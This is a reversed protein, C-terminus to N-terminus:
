EGALKMINELNIVYRAKPPKGIADILGRKALASVNNRAMRETIGLGMQIDAADADELEFFVQLVKNALEPLEHTSLLNDLHYYELPQRFIRNAIPIKGDRFDRLLANGLIDLQYLYRRGKTYACLAVQFPVIGKKRIDEWLEFPSSLPRPPVLPKEDMKKTHSKISEPSYFDALYSRFMATEIIPKQKPNWQNLAFPNIHFLMLGGRGQRNIKILKTPTDYEWREKTNPHYFDIEMESWEKINYIADLLTPYKKGDIKFRADALKNGVSRQYKRLNKRLQKKAFGDVEKPPAFSMIKQCKELIDIM